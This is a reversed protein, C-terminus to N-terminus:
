VVATMAGTLSVVLFTCTPSLVTFTHLAHPPIAISSGPGLDYGTRHLPTVPGRPAVVEFTEYEGDTHGADIKVTLVGDPATLEVGDGAAIHQIFHTM